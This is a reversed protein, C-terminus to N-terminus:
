ARGVGRGGDRGWGWVCVLEGPMKQSCALFALSGPTTSVEEMSPTLLYSGKNWFCHICILPPGLQCSVGLPNSIKVVFGKRLTMSGNRVAMLYADVGQKAMHLTDESKTSGGQSLNRQDSIKNQKLEHLCIVTLSRLTLLFINISKRESPLLVLTKIM